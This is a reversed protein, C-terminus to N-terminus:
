RQHHHRLGTSTARGYVSRTDSGPLIAGGLASAFRVVWRVGLSALPRRRGRPSARLYRTNLMELNRDGVLPL